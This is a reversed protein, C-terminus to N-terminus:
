GRPTRMEASRCTPPRSPSDGAAVTRSRGRHRAVGRARLDRSLSPPCAEADGHRQEHFSAPGESDTAPIALQEAARARLDALAQPGPPLSPDGESGPERILLVKRLFPLASRLVALKRGYLPLKTVIGRGNGEGIRQRIPGPRFAALVPGAKSIGLAGIRRESLPDRLTFFLERWGVRRRARCERLMSSAPPAASDGVESHRGLWRLVASGRVLAVPAPESISKWNM